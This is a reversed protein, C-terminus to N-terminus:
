QVPVKVVGKDNIPIISPIAEQLINLVIESPYERQNVYINALVNAYRAALIPDIAEVSLEIYTSEDISRANISMIRLKVENNTIGMAEWALAIYKSTTIRIRENNLILKTQENSYTQIPIKLEVIVCSRYIPVIDNNTNNSYVTTTLYHCVMLVFVFAKM